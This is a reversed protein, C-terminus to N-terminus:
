DDGQKQKKDVHGTDSLDGTPASPLEDAVAKAEADVRAETKEAADADESSPEEKLGETEPPFFMSFWTTLMSECLKAVPYYERCFTMTLM